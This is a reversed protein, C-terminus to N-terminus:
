YSSFFKPGRHTSIPAQQPILKSLCQVTPLQKRHDKPFQSPPKGWSHARILLHLSSPDHSEVFGRVLKYCSSTFNEKFIFWCTEGEAKTRSFVSVSFNSLISIPLSIGPLSGPFNEKYPTNSSSAQRPVFPFSPNILCYFIVVGTTVKPFSIWGLSIIANVIKPM